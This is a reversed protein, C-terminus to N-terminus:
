GRPLQLIRMLEDVPMARAPISRTNKKQMWSPGIIEPPKGRKRKDSMGYILSNLSNLVSANLVDNLTWNNDRNEVTRIRANPPLQNVLCAIHYVSHAGNM